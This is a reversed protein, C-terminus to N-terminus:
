YLAFTNLEYIKSANKKISDEKEVLSIKQNYLIFHVSLFLESRKSSQSKTNVTRNKRFFVLFHIGLKAKRLIRRTALWNFIFSLKKRWWEKLLRLLDWTLRERTLKWRVVTKGLCIIISYLVEILNNYRFPLRKWFNASKSTWILLSVSFVTTLFMLM